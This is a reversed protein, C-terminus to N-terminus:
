LKLIYFIFKSERRTESVLKYPNNNVLNRINKVVGENGAVLKLMQGSIMIDLVSKSLITPIPCTSNTTDILINYTNSM